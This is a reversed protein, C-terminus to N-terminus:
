SDVAPQLAHLNLNENSGRSVTSQGTARREDIVSQLIPAAGELWELAEELDLAPVNRGAYRFADELIEEWAASLDDSDTKTIDSSIIPIKWSRLLGLFM